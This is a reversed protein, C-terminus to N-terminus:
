FAEAQTFRPLFDLQHLDTTLSSEAIWQLGELVIGYSTRISEGM